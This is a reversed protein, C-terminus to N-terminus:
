NNYFILCLINIYSSDCIYKYGQYEFFNERQNKSDQKLRNCINIFDVNNKWKPM